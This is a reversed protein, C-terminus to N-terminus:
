CLRQDPKLIDSPQSAQSLLLQSSESIPPCSSDKFVTLILVSPLLSGSFPPGPTISFPSHPSARQAPSGLIARAEIGDM